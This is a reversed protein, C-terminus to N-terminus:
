KRMKYKEEDIPLAYKEDTPVMVFIVKRKSEVYILTSSRTCPVIQKVKKIATNSPIKWHIQHVHYWFCKLETRRKDAGNGFDSPEEFPKLKGRVRWEGQRVSECQWEGQWECIFSPKKHIGKRLWILNRNRVHNFSAFYVKTPWIQQWM